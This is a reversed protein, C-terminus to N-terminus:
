QLLTNEGLGNPGVFGGKTETRGGKLAETKKGSM